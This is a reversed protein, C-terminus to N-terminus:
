IKSQYENSLKQTNRPNLDFLFLPLSYDRRRIRSPLNHIAPLHGGIVDTEIKVPEQELFGPIQLLGAGNGRIDHLEGGVPHPPEEFRPLDLVQHGPLLEGGFPVLSRIRPHTHEVGVHDQTGPVDVVLYMRFKVPCQVIGHPFRLNQVAAELNCFFFLCLHGLSPPM